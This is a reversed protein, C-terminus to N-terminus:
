WNQRAYSSGTVPYILVRYKAKMDSDTVFITGGTSSSGDPRYDLRFHLATDQAPSQGGATDLGTQANWVTVGAPLLVTSILQWCHTSPPTCTGGPVAMGYDSWAWLIMCPGRCNAGYDSADLAIEVEHYKRTAVARTRALTVTSNIQDAFSKASAGYTRGSIGVILAGLVAIIAVVVMLEILTFGRQTRRAHQMM